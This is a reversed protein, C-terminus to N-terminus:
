PWAHDRSSKRERNRVLARFLETQLAHDRFIAFHIRGIEGDGDIGRMAHGGADARVIPRSGNLDDGIGDRLRIIQHLGAMDKRQSRLVAADQAASTVGFRCNIKGGHGSQLRGPHEAFNQMVVARHRTQRLQHPEAFFVAQANAGDLTQDRMPPHPFFQDLAFLDHFHRGIVAIEIQMKITRFEVARM